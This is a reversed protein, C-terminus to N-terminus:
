ALHKLIVAYSTCELKQTTLRAEQPLFPCTPAAVRRCASTLKSPKNFIGPHFQVATPIQISPNM